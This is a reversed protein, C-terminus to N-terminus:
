ECMYRDALSPATMTDSFRYVVGKDGIAIAEPFGRGIKAFPRIKATKPSEWGSIVTVASGGLLNTGTWLLDGGPSFHCGSLVEPPAVHLVRSPDLALRGHKKRRVLCTLTGRTKSAAFGVCTRRKRKRELSGADRQHLCLGEYNPGCNTQWGSLCAHKRAGRKGAVSYAPRVLKWGRATRRWHRMFGSSTLGFLTGRRFSIGELDDSAMDDLPLNGRRLVAGSRPDLELFSGRTGSDGIVVITAPSTTTAPIYAAGSAEQIPITKAFTTPRCTAAAQPAKGGGPSPRANPENPVKSDVAPPALKTGSGNEGSGCAAASLVLATCALARASVRRATPQRPM